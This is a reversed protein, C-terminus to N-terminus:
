VKSKIAGVNMRKNLGGCLEIPAFAVNYRNKFQFDQQQNGTFCSLVEIAAM